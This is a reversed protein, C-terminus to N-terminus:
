GLWLLGHGKRCGAVLVTLSSGGRHETRSARNEREGYFRSWPGRYTWTDNTRFDTAAEGEGLDNRGGLGRTEPQTKGRGSSRGGHVEAAALQNPARPGSDSGGGRCLSQDAARSRGRFAHCGRGSCCGALPPRPRVHKGPGSHAAGLFRQGERCYSRRADEGAIQPAGACEPGRQPIDRSWLERFRGAVELAGACDSSRPAM